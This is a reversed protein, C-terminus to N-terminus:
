VMKRLLQDLKKAYNEASYKEIELWNPKIKLESSRYLDYYYKIAKKIGKIDEPSVVVGTGTSRIVDASAGEPTIALIPKSTNIYELLKSPLFVNEKNSPADILLLVDSNFLQTFINKRPISNIVQVINNLNYKSTLYRFKGISGILRVEIEESINKDLLKLAKLFSEPSRSGYFNGIYTIVFKEKKTKNVKHLFESPDYSNPIITIKDEINYKEVFLRKMQKTTVVIKETKLMIKKELNENLERIIKNPYFIYPNQVWPDSFCAIWPLKSSLSLKLGILHSTIPTSRSVIIDISEDKLLKKGERVAFYIWGIKNDPLIKFHSLTRSIINEISSTRHVLINKPISSLTSLDIKEQRPKKASLVIIEWGFLPLYKVSNFAMTSEASQIPPFFYSILLLKKM